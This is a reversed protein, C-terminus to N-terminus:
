VGNIDELVRPLLLKSIIVQGVEQGVFAGALVAVIGFFSKVQLAEKIAFALIGGFGFCFLRFAVLLAVWVSGTKGLHLRRYGPGDIVGLFGCGILWLMFITAVESTDVLLFSILGM